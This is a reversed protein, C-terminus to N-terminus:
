ASYFKNSSCKPGTQAALKTHLFIEYTLILIKSLLLAVFSCNADTCSNLFLDNEDIVRYWLGGRLYDDILGTLGSAPRRDGVM